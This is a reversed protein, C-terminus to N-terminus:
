SQVGRWLKKNATIGFRYVKDPIATSSGESSIDACTFISKNLSLSLNETGSCNDNSVNNIQAATITAQGNEDLEVKIDKAKATPAEIDNVIVDFSCTSKNGSADTVEFTNTTVGVPFESGSALGVTQTAIDVELIYQRTSVATMDNWAGGFYLEAYDENGSNNPEGGGWNTYTVADGNEWVFQGEIARDTLGIMVSGGTLKSNIFNNEAADNIAVINGGNSAADIFADEPYFARNSKYYFKGNYAGLSTFNTKDPQLIECNDSAIPTSFTVVAGCIGSDTDVEINEPCAITPPTTDDVCLANPNSGQYTYLGDYDWVYILGDNPNYQASTLNGNALTWPISTAKGVNTNTDFTYNITQNSQISSDICYVVGDIVFADGMQNKPESNTNWTATPVLSNADLKSVILGTNSADSYLVWLGSEDIAFDIYSAGGWEYPFPSSNTLPAQMVISRSAFNYKVLTNSNYMNYYLNGNYVVHGTGFYGTPLTYTTRIINSKLDEISAYEEVTIGRFDRLVWILGKGNTELPDSIWNGRVSPYTTIFTPNTGDIQANLNNSFFLLFFICSIKLFYNQKM